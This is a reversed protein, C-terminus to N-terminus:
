TQGTGVEGGSVAREVKVLVSFIGRHHILQNDAKVSLELFDDLIIYKIESLSVVVVPSGRISCAFDHTITVAYILYAVASAVDVTVGIHGSTVIGVQAVTTAQNNDSGGTSRAEQEVTRGVVALVVDDNRVVSLLGSLVLSCHIVTIASNRVDDINGSDHSVITEAVQVGNLTGVPLIRSNLRDLYRSFVDVEGIGIYFGEADGVPVGAM